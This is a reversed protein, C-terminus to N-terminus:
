ISEPVTIQHNMSSVFLYGEPASIGLPESYGGTVPVGQDTSLKVNSVSSVGHVRSIFNSVQAITIGSDIEIQANLSHIWPSLYINLAQKVQKIVGDNQYNSDVTISAWVTVKQPAYNVVQIPFLVGARQSLYLQIDDLRCDAVLPVFAGQTKWDAIKKVVYVRIDRGPSHSVRSYFIDPYALAISTYFDSRSIVRDKTKIRLSVSRNFQTENEAARGGFSPFPQTTTALQPISVLPQTIAKAKITPAVTDHDFKNGSRMVTFGNSTLIVTRSCSAVNNSTAIALWYLGKPMLATSSCIAKPVNVTLIGPCALANTSDSIVTLPQWGNKGLYFYQPAKNGAPNFNSAMEFYLNLLNPALLNQLGIYMVGSFAFEPYLPLGPSAAQGVSAKGQGSKEPKLFYNGPIQEAQEEKTLSTDHALFAGFPSYLYLQIPADGGASRTLDYVSNASYNAYLSALKPAFPPPPFPLLRGGLWYHSVQRANMLAVWAVVAPYLQSGFGVQPGNISLRLFGSQSASSYAPDSNQISPDPFSPTQPIVPATASSFCSEGTLKGKADTSFLLVNASAPAPPLTNTNLFGTPMWSGQQLLFFNVTFCQNNFPIKADKIVPSNGSFLRKFFLLIGNVIKSVTAPIKDAAQKLKNVVKNIRTQIGKVQDRIGTLINNIFKRIRNLISKFPNSIFTRLLGALGKPKSNDGAKSGNNTSSDAGPVAPSQSGPLPAASSVTTNHSQLHAAAEQSLTAAQLASSPKILRPVPYKELYNNYLQYYALLDPPLNDWELTLSLSSLPKSFLETSGLIFNSNLLPLPGFPLYPTKPSLDGNDNYFQFTKYGTVNVSISLQTLIPPNVFDAVQTFEMKFLPWEATIGEVPESFKEFAPETTPLVFNLQTVYPTNPLSIANVSQLLTTIEYWGSATSLYYRVYPEQFIRTDPPKVFVLDLSLSRLGERLLLMPSAFAIGSTKLSAAPPAETGFTGWSEVSGDEATTITSPTAIKQLFYSSAPPTDPMLRAPSSKAPSKTGAPSAQLTYVSAVQAPNLSNTETSSFLIPQKQADLGADFLSGKPLNLVADNKALSCYLFATDAQAPKETQGLIDKYYFQLHKASLDNLQQQQEKLLDIFARLLTTDPFLSKKRKVREYEDKAAEVINGFFRFVNGGTDALTNRCKEVLGAADNKQILPALPNEQWNQNEFPKYPAAMNLIEWFPAKNKNEQWTDQSFDSFRSLDVPAIGPIVRNLFLFERFSLLAWFCPAYTERVKRLVYEKLEYHDTNLEMFRTWHEMRLFVQTLMGFLKNFCFALTEDRQTSDPPDGVYGATNPLPIALADLFPGQFDKVSTKSIFALLFVPDKLLFPQWSGNITNTEDYFNFLGALGTMFHLLDTETRGDLLTPSPVLAEDLSGTASHQNIIDM